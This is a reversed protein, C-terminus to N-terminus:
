LLSAPLEDFDAQECSQEFARRRNQWFRFIHIPHHQLAATKVANSQTEIAHHCLRWCRSLNDKPLSHYIKPRASILVLSAPEQTLEMDVM